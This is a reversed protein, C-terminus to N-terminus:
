VSWYPSSLHKKNSLICTTTIVIIIIVSTSLIYIISPPCSSLNSYLFVPSKPKWTKLSINNQGSWILWIRDVGYSFFSVVFVWQISLTSITTATFPCFSLLFNLFWFSFGVRSGQSKRGWGRICAERGGGWRERAGKFESVKLFERKGNGGASESVTQFEGGERQSSMGLGVVVVWVVPLGAVLKWWLGFRWRALGVRAEGYHGWVMEYGQPTRGHLRSSAMVATGMDTRPGMLSWTKGM